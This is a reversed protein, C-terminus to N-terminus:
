RTLFQLFHGVNTCVVDAAVAASRGPWPLRRARRRFPRCLIEPADPASFSGVGIETCVLGEKKLGANVKAATARAIGVEVRSRIVAAV